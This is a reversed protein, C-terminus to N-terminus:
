SNIGAAIVQISVLGANCLTNNSVQFLVMASTDDNNAVFLRRGDM